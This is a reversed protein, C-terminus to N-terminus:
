NKLSKGVQWINEEFPGGETGLSGLSPFQDLLMHDPNFNDATTEIM